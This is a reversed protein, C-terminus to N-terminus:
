SKVTSAIFNARQSSARDNEQKDVGVHESKSRLM